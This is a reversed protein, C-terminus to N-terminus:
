LFILKTKSSWSFSLLQNKFSFRLVSDSPFFPVPILITPTVLEPSGKRRNQGGVLVKTSHILVGTYQLRGRPNAPLPVWLLILPPNWITPHPYNSSLSSSQPTHSTRLQSFIFPFICILIILQNLRSWLASEFPDPLPRLSPGHISPPLPHHPPGQGAPSLSYTYSITIKAM